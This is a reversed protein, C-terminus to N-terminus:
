TIPTQAAIPDARFNGGLRDVDQTADTLKAANIKIETVPQRATARVLRV